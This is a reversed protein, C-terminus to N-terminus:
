PQRRSIAPRSMTAPEGDIEGEITSGNVRGQFVISGGPASPSALELAIVDGVLLAQKIPTSRGGSVVEGEIAQFSQELQVEAQEAGKEGPLDISWAGEVRAPIVWLYVTDNGIEAVMDPEWDGMDFDHSVVRAGPQMESLIKDRVRLNVGPLLYLTLVTARSLDTDFLDQERFEVRDKLGAREASRKSQEVLQRNLDVGMARAGFDKAAAIVIRGDGSGLDIVFDEPGVQAVALMAQVTEEPTPVFPVDGEALAISAFGGVVAIGIARCRKSLMETEQPERDEPDTGGCPSGERARWDRAGIQALAPEGM